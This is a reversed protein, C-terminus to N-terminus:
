DLVGNTVSFSIETLAAINVDVNEMSGSASYYLGDAIPILVYTRLTEKVVKGDLQFYTMYAPIYVTYLMREMGTQAGFANSDYSVTKSWTSYTSAQISLTLPTAAFYSAVTSSVYEQTPSTLASPSAYPIGFSIVHDNAIYSEVSVKNIRVTSAIDEPLYIRAHTTTADYENITTESYTIDNLWSQAIDSSLATIDLSYDVASKCSSLVFMFVFAIIPMIIKKM